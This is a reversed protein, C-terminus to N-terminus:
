KNVHGKLKRYFKLSEKKLAEADNYDRFASVESGHPIDEFCVKLCDGIQLDSAYWTYSLMGTIDLSSFDVRFRGEKNTVLVNTIGHDIAGSLCEGNVQLSFGKM